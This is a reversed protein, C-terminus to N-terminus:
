IVLMEIDEDFILVEYNSIIFKTIKEYLDYLKNKDSSLALMYLASEKINDNDDQESVLLEYKNKLRDAISKLVMRRDKLSSSAPIRLKLKLVMVCKKM